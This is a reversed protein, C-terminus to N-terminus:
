AGRVVRFDHPLRIRARSRRPAWLGICSASVALLSCEPSDKRALHLSHRAGKYGPLYSGMCYGGLHLNRIVEAKAVGGM